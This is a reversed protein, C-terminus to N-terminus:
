HLLFVVRMMRNHKKKQCTRMSVSREYRQGETPLCTESHGEHISITKATETYPQLTITMGGRFDSGVRLLVFRM